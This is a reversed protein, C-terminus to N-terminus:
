LKQPPPCREVPERLTYVLKLKSKMEPELAYVTSIIKARSIYDPTMDFIIDSEHCHSFLAKYERIDAESPEEDREYKNFFHVEPFITTATPFPMKLHLTKGWRWWWKEKRSNL